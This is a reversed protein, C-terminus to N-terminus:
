YQGPFDQGLQLLGLLEKRQGAPRSRKSGESKFGNQSVALEDVRDNGIDSDCIETLSYLLIYLTTYIFYYIYYIYITYLTYM